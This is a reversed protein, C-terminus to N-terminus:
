YGRLETIRSFFEEFYGGWEPEEESQLELEGPPRHRALLRQCEGADRTQLVFYYRGKITVTALAVAVESAQVAGYFDREFRELEASPTDGPDIILWWMHPYGSKDISATVNNRFRWFDYKDDDYPRYRLLWDDSDLLEKVNAPSRPGDEGLQPAKTKLEAGIREKNRSGEPLNPNVLMWGNGDEVCKPFDFLQKQYRSLFTKAFTYKYHYMQNYDMPRGAVHWCYAHLATYDEHDRGVYYEEGDDARLVGDECSGLYPGGEPSVAVGFLLWDHQSTFPFHGKPKNDERYIAWVDERDTSVYHDHQIPLGCILCYTAHVGM